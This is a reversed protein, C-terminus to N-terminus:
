DIPHQLGRFERVADALTVLSATVDTGNISCRCSRDGRIRIPGIEGVAEITVACAAVDLTVRGFGFADCEVAMGEMELAFDTEEITPHVFLCRRAGGDVALWKTTTGATLTAGALEVLSDRSQIWQLSSRHVAGARSLPAVYPVGDFVRAMPRMERLDYSFSLSGGGSAYAIERVDNTDTRDSVRAAGVHRRFASLDDFDAREAVEIIVANRANRKFFAGALSRYEWFTNPPGLYNYVDLTLLQGDVRLEIPADHGFDDPELPIVAIYVGGEAIVVVEGPQVRAAFADVPREGCWIQTEPGIGLMRVSLKLSRVPRLRPTLGYAVIARNRSQAAVLTGEDWLDDGHGAEPSAGRDRDDVLFRTSLTGFGPAVGRRFHLLAGNLQQTPEPPAGVTYHCSATGLAYSETMYTTIDAGREADVTERVEFPFHKETLWAISAPTPHLRDLALATHMEERSPKGYPREPRLLPDGLLRWLLLKLYGGAGTWGDFYSRAHPGALQRLLPHYHAAVHMWVREEAVRAKLALDPEPAHEALAALRQLDVACYTPSNYEHPAGSRNTFDLWDILRREGREVYSADGLVVGGLVSNSIDSLAINTYSLHVDLRDIEALGLAIAKRVDGALAAPLAAGHSLMLENLNDLIFEVGNLDRVRPEELTWRFNGYHSDAPNLEQLALVSRIAREALSMAAEGDRLLNLLGYALTSRASHVDPHDPSRVMAVAEDWLPDCIRGAEVLLQRAREDLASSTV